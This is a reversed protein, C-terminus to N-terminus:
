HNPDPIPGAKTSPQPRIQERREAAPPAMRRALLGFVAITSGVYLGIVWINTTDTGALIGHLLAALFLGFSAFHISRWTKQGIHKKVYFSSIVVVLTYFSVVGLAVALPKWESRGPILIEGWTFPLFEHISLGVMHIVTALLASIGLSEHFWTLAKAKTLNGLFKTSAFLGWIVSSSLLAFAVIGSGRIVLWELNM